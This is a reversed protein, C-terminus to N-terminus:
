KSEEKKTEKKVSLLTIKGKKDEVKKIANASAKHVIIELTKELDGDSLLKVPLGKKAVLKKSYLAELDVKSNNEFVNLQGVNVVLFTEKNPTKFGKLKPMKRSLPTQGGEFGPRRKGGSRATQGKCGKGCFTGKGSGNGRGLRKKPKKRSKSKLESLSM